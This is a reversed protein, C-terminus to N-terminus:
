MGYALSMLGWILWMLITTRKWQPVFLLRLRASGNELLRRMDTRRVSLDQELNLPHDRNPIEEIGMDQPAETITSTDSGYPFAQAHSLEESPTHFFSSQLSPAVRSADSRITEQKPPPTGYERSASFDIYASSNSSIIGPHLAILPAPHKLSGSVADSRNDEDEDDRKVARYGDLSSKVEVDRLELPFSHANYAAINRLAALAAESKQQAALYRPSEHLRFLFFRAGFM